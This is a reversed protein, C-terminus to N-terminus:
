FDITDPDYPEVGLERICHRVIDIQQECDALADHDPERFWSLHKLREDPWDAVDQLTRVCRKKNYRWPVDEGALQAAHEILVNDFDPGKAWWRLEENGSTLTSAWQNLYVLVEEIPRANANFLVKQAMDQDQRFWFELTGATVETLGLDFCSQMDVYEDFHSAMWDDSTYLRNFTKAGIQLIPAGPDTGLTEIDLMVDIYDQGM